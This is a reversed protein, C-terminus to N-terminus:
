YGNGLYKKVECEEDPAHDVFLSEKLEALTTFILGSGANSTRGTDDESYIYIIPSDKDNLIRDIEAFIASYGRIVKEGLPGTNQTFASVAIVLSFILACVM